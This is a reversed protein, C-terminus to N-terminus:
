DICIVDMQAEYEKLSTDHHVAPPAPTSSNYFVHLSCQRKGGRGDGGHDKSSSGRGSQSPTVTPTSDGRRKQGNYVPTKSQQQQQQGKSLTVRGLLKGRVVQKSPQAAQLTDSGSAALQLRVAQLEDWIRQQQHVDISSLIGSHDQEAQQQEQQRQQQQQQQPPPPPPPPLPQACLRPQQPENRAPDRPLLYM